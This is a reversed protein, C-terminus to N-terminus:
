VIVNVGQLPMEAAKMRAVADRMAEQVRADVAARDTAALKQIREADVRRTEVAARTRETSTANADTKPKTILTGHIDTIGPIEGSRARAGDGLRYNSPLSFNALNGIISM